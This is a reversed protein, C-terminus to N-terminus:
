VRRSRAGCAARSRCRRSQRGPTTRCWRTPHGLMRAGPFSAGTGVAGGWRGRATTSDCTRLPGPPRAAAHGRHPFDPSWLAPHWSVAPRPSGVSLAVSFSVGAQAGQSGLSFLQFPATLACWRRPLAAAQCVGDPALAFLPAIRQGPTCGPQRSSSNPSPCDLYIAARSLVRSVPGSRSWRGHKMSPTTASGLALALTRIGRSANEAYSFRGQSPANINPPAGQPELARFVLRRSTKLSFPAAKASGLALAM